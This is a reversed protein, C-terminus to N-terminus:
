QRADILTFELEVVVNKPPFRPSTQEESPDSRGFPLMFTSAQYYTKETNVIMNFLMEGSISNVLAAYVDRYNGRFQARMPIPRNWRFTIGTSPYAEPRPSEPASTQRVQAYTIAASKITVDHIYRCGKSDASLGLFRRFEVLDTAYTNPVRWIELYHAESTSGNEVEKQAGTLATEVIDLLNAAPANVLRVTVKMAACDRLPGPAAGRATSNLRIITPEFGVVENRSSPSTDEPEVASMLPM